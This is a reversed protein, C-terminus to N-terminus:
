SVWFSGEGDGSVQLVLGGPTIVVTRTRDFGMACLDGCYDFWSLNMQVVFVNRYTNGAVTTSAQFSVSGRYTVASGIMRIGNSGSFDGNQFDRSLGIYYSVADSTIASPIAVGDFGYFRWDSGRTPPTGEAIRLYRMLRSEISRAIVIDYPGTTDVLSAPLSDVLAAGATLAHGPSLPTEESCGFVVFGLAVLLLNRPFPAGM